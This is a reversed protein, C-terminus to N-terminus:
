RGQAAPRFPVQRALRQGHARVGACARQRRFLLRHAQHPQRPQDEVTWLTGVEAMFQQETVDDDMHEHLVKVAVDLGNPLMGKYVAGFGGAGLEASRRQTYGEQQQATFRIPKERAIEDLFNEITTDRIVSDPLV